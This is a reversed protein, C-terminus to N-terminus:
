LNSRSYIPAIPIAGEVTRCWPPIGMGMGSSRMVASYASVEAQVATNYYITASKSKGCNYM